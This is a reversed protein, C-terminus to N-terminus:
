IAKFLDLFLTAFDQCTAVLNFTFAIVNLRSNYSYVVRGGDNVVLDKSRDDVDHLKVVQVLSNLHVVRNRM